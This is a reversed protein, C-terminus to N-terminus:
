LFGVFLTSVALMLGGWFMNHGWGSSKVCDPIECEFEYFSLTGSIAGGFLVGTCGTPSQEKPVFITTEPDLDGMDDRYSKEPNKDKSAPSLNFTKLLVPDNINTIDYLLCMSNNEGCAVTVLRSCAVGVTVTEVALGDEQAKEDITRSMECAGTSGDSFTCGDQAADNREEISERDDEDALTWRPSNVAAFDEDQLANNAWSFNNDCTEREFDSGQSSCTHLMLSVNEKGASWSLILSKGFGM